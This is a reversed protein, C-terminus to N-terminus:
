DFDPAQAWIMKGPGLPQNAAMRERVPQSSEIGKLESYRKIKPTLPPQIM